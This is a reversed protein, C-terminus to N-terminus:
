RKLSHEIEEAMRLHEQLIPLSKSAFAAVEPDDSKRSANEFLEIDEKHDDVMHSIYTKDFDYGSKDSLNRFLRSEQDQPLSLNKRGALASLESDAKEHDSVMKQGFSRVSPDSAREAALRGLRVEDMSGKAAKEIFRRDGRTLKVASDEGDKSITNTRSQDSRVTDNRDRAPTSGDATTAPSSGAAGQATVLNGICSFTLVIALGAAKRLPHSLSAPKM